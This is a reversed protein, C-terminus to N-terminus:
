EEIKVFKLYFPLPSSQCNASEPRSEGKLKAQPSAETRLCMPTYKGLQSEGQKKVSLQTNKGLM